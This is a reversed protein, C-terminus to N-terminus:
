LRLSAEKRWDCYKQVQERTSIGQKISNVSVLSVYFYNIIKFSDPAQELFQATFFLSFGVHNCTYIAHSSYDMRVKQLNSMYMWLKAM